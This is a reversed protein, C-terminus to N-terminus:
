IMGARHAAYARKFGAASGARKIESPVMNWPDGACVTFFNRRIELRGHNPRVNLPDANRRTRAAAVPPPEFWDARDQGTRGCCLKYMHLMDAQHCREELTTLRLEKLHEEYDRGRFGSIM